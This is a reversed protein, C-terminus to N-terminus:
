IKSGSPIIRIRNPHQLPQTLRNGAGIEESGFLLGVGAGVAAGDKGGIAAGALAGIVTGIAADRVSPDETVGGVQQFAYQRCQADDFRFDDFSRDTGPLAMISPATPVGACGGLLALLSFIVAVKFTKM